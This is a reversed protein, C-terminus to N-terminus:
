PVKERVAAPPAHEDQARQLLPKRVRTLNYASNVLAMHSFAQPFNGILRKSSPDYEESLLGVENCLGVLRRFLNEAEEFREQLIYVDVLWFSCALFAGEGPPLADKVEETSYRMVLGDRLLGREIAAITAVIRPDSVPLFGVCPLMLLSADLQDSGYAQVFTGLKKNYAHTCVDDCIEDRLSRWEELPGELGFSEASKITRDFAVWAMVKSYTFHQAPGRMEWIGQDPERWIQALHELFKIQADWGSDNTTLGGRRAQHHVDMIEGFMDLQLQTHAANGIRVPASKEYGPLWDAVWESLRREGGIGYM